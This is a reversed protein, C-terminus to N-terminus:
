CVLHHSQVSEILCYNEHKGLVILADNLDVQFAIIYKWDIPFFVITQQADLKVLSVMMQIDIENSIALNQQLRIM